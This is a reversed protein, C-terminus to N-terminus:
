GIRQHAEELIVDEEATWAEKNVNPDLHNHWRERCQKGTRPNTRGIRLQLDQAIKSWQRKHLTILETIIVDEQQTWPCRAQRPMEKQQQEIASVRHQLVTTKKPDCRLWSLKGGKKNLDFSSKGNVRPCLDTPKFM